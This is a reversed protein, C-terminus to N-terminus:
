VHVSLYVTSSCWQDVLAKYKSTNELSSTSKICQPGFLKDGKKM